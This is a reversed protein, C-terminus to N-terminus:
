FGLLQSWTSKRHFYNQLGVTKIRLCLLHAIKQFHFAVSSKQVLILDGFQSKLFGVQVEEENSM